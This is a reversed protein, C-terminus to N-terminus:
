SLINLLGTRYNYFCNYFWRIEFSIFSSSVTAKECCINRFGEKQGFYVASTTDRQIVFFTLPTELSSDCANGVLSGIFSLQVSNMFCTSM